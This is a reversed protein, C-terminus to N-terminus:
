IKIIPMHPMDNQVIGVISFIRKLDQRRASQEIAQM